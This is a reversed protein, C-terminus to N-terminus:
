FDIQGFESPQKITERHIRQCCSCGKKKVELGRMETKGASGEARRHLEKVRCWTCMRKLWCTIKALIEPCM